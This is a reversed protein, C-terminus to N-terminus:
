LHHCIPAVVNFKGTQRPNMCGVQLAPVSPPRERASSSESSGPVKGLDYSCGVCLILIALGNVNPFPYM